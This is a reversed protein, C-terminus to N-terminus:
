GLKQLKSIGFTLGILYKWTSKLYMRIVWWFNRFKDIGVVRKSGILPDICIRIM